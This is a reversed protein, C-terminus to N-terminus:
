ALPQAAWHLQEIFRKLRDVADGPRVIRVWQREKINTDRYRFEVKENDIPTIELWSVSPHPPYQVATQAILLTHMSMHGFLADRMDSRNIWACIEAIAHHAAVWEKMSASRDNYAKELERWDRHM